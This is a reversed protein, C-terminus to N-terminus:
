GQIMTVGPLDNQNYDVPGLPVVNKPDDVFFVIVSGKKYKAGGLYNM